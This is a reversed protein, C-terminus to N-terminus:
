QEPTFEDIATLLRRSYHDWTYDRARERSARAMQDRLERNQILDQIVAALVLPDREPIIRGDIGDRAVSGAARTVISPLGAALAQYTVEASGEALSPLVFLDAAAFENRLRDPPLRGLFNLNCCLPHHMVSPRANGAIRFEFNLGSERLQNAAMALYHIGKRLDATGAFLVRGPVPAPKLNLWDPDFGYPVFATRGPPVRYNGVLDDRVAESPCIFLDTRQLLPDEGFLNHTILESDFTAPQWDPFRKQEERLIRETSLLIYIESVVCLGRQSASILLPPFEGLMSYLHSANGFTTRAMAEGVRNQTRRLHLFQKVPNRSVFANRLFGLLAESDFTKTKPIIERPLVRNGLHRLKTPLFPLSRAAPLAKGISISSCIDTYFRELMGAREFLAPVAYGRRAGTQAVIFRM